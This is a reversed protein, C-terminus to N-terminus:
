STASSIGSDKLNRSSSAQKLASHYNALVQSHKILDWMWSAAILWERPNLPQHFRPAPLSFIKQVVAEFSGKPARNKGTKETELGQIANPVVSFPISDILAAQSESSSSTRVDTTNSAQLIELSTTPTLFSSRAFYAALSKQLRAQHAPSTSFSNTKNFVFMLAPLYEQEPSYLNIMDLAGSIENVKQEDITLDAALSRDSKPNSNKATKAGEAEAEPAASKKNGRRRERKKGNPTSSGATANRGAVADNGTQAPKAVVDLMMKEYTERRRADTFSQKLQPILVTLSPASHLLDSVEPFTWKLMELTKFHKWVSSNCTSDDVALVINCVSLLFVGIQLSLLQLTTEQNRVDVAVSDGRKSNLLMPSQLMSQAELLIVCDSENVRRKLSSNPLLDFLRKNPRRVIAMDISFHKSAPVLNKITIEPNREPFPGTSPKMSSKPAESSLEEVSELQQLISLPRPANREAHTSPASGALPSCQEAIANLLSSKGSGPCGLVGIVLVEGQTSANANVNSAPFWEETGSLLPKLESPIALQFQSFEGLLHYLPALGKTPIPSDAVRASPDTETPAPRPVPSPTSRSPELTQPKDLAEGAARPQIKVVSPSQLGDNAPSQNHHRPPHSDGPRSRATPKAIIPKPEKLVQESPQPAPVEEVPKVRAEPNRLLVPQFSSQLFLYLFQTLLKFLIQSALQTEGIRFCAGSVNRVSAGDKNGTSGSAKPGKGQPRHKQNGSKKGSRGEQGSGRPDQKNSYMWKEFRFICEFHSTLITHANSAPPSLVAFHLRELKEIQRRIALAM